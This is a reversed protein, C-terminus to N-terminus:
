RISMNMGADYSSMSLNRKSPSRGNVNMGPTGAAKSGTFIDWFRITEDASASCITGGDPSKALHLVRSTHGRFERVKTMTPYKWLILQNDSFGHSSVLEKYTDSWQISCVQSGTDVTKLNSGNASNWIRISRDATGGGSALTNRQWPCWALAKVAAQHQSLICRPQMENVPQLASSNSRNSMAADWLCLLNENGGSALTTGDPSWSLGCIEQQHGVYRSTINRRARIDHNLIISDRSGSSLMGDASWSLSSVRGSHGELERTMKLESSDWLQVTNFSTGVAISNGQQAWQLSTVYDDAGDLNLLQEIRGDTPYWLYVAQKLAVAIVNNSGWHLLNLYYDDMIDPADLIRSPGNPIIRSPTSKTQTPSFSPLNSSVFKRSEPTTSTLCSQDCCDILRRKSPNLAAFRVTDSNGTKPSKENEQFLSKNLENNCFDFNMNVRNPITRDVSNMNKSSGAMVLDRGDCAKKDSYKLNRPSSQKITSIDECCSPPVKNTRSVGNVSSSNQLIKIPSVLCNAQASANLSKRSKKPTSPPSFFEM